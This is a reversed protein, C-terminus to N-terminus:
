RVFIFEDSNLLAWVLSENTKRFRTRADFRQAWRVVADVEAATAERSLVRLYIQRVAKELPIGASDLSDLWPSRALKDQITTSNLLYLAQKSNVSGDRGSELAVDRSPRGFLDLQPTTVTGDGVEIASTGHTISSGYFCVPDAIRHPLPPLLQAGEDLGIELKKVGSYLPLYVSVSRIRGDSNGIDLVHDIKGSGDPGAGKKAEDASLGVVGRFKLHGDDTEAYFAFGATGTRAMHNKDNVMYLEARLAIRSSSTRFRVEGGSTQWAHVNTADPKEVDEATITMPLRRLEGNPGRWPFGSLEFPAEFANRFELPKEEEAAAATLACQSLFCCATVTKLVEKASM